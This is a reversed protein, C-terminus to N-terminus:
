NPFYGLLLMRLKTSNPLAPSNKYYTIGSGKCM